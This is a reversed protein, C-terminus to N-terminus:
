ELKLNRNQLCHASSEAERTKFGKWLAWINRMTTIKKKSRGTGGAQRIGNEARDKGAQRLSGGGGKSAPDLVLTFLIVSFAPNFFPFLQVPFLLVLTAFNLSGM